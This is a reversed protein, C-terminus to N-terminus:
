RIIGHLGYLIRDKIMLFDTGSSAEAIICNDQMSVKTENSMKMFIVPALNTANNCTIIPIIGTTNATFGQLLYKNFHLNLQDSLEYYSLAIYQSFSDNFNSTAQIEFTNKIRSIIEPTINIYEAASPFNNFEAEKKNIKTTWVNGNNVFVFKNYTVKRQSSENGMLYGLISTIMIFSVFAVMLNRKNLLGM